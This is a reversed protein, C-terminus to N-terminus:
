AALSPQSAERRRTVAYLVPLTVLTLLTSTAVGGITVTALPLLSVGLLLRAVAASRM